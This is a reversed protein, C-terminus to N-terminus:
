RPKIFFWSEFNGGPVGNGSTWPGPHAPNSVCPVSGPAKDGPDLGVAPTGLYPVRGGVHNGDVPRCCADLLFDCRVSVLIRDGPRPREDTVDRYVIRDVMGTEPLAVYSGEIHTIQGAVGRGGTLCWVDVVGPKITSAHIPRSFRIELGGPKSDTGLLTAADDPSYSDGHRWNIGTIVTPVYLGFPRRVGNEVDEPSLTAHPKVTVVALLVCADCSGTCCLECREDAHPRELSAVIKFSERVRADKCGPTIQCNDLAAPRVPEFGYEAYCISIYLSGGGKDAIHKWDADSVVRALDILVDSKVVIEHGIPDLALGCSLKLKHDIKLPESPTKGAIKEQERLLRELEPELRPIEKKDGATGLSQIKARLEAIARENARWQESRPDPCAVESPVAELLLGCVVGYGHLCRNILLHKARHYAQEDRLERAGLMQGPFYSMRIFDPFKACPEPQSTTTPAHTPQPM